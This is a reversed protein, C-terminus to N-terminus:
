GKLNLGPRHQPKEQIESGASDPWGRRTKMALLSYLGGQAEQAPQGRWLQFNLDGQGLYLLSM